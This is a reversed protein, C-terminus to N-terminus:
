RVVVAVLFGVVLAAGLVAVLVKTRRSVDKWSGFFLPVPGILVLGGVEASPAETRGPLPASTTPELFPGFAFPITLFGVLLLVVGVLFEASSGSIVPIIAVLALSATGRVVADAVLAVGLVLLVVPVWGSRHM